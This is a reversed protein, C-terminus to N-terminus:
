EEFRMWKPAHFKAVGTKWWHKREHQGKEAEFTAYGNERKSEIVDVPQLRRRLTKWWSYQKRRDKHQRKVNERAQSIKSSSSCYVNSALKKIEVRSRKVSATLSRLSIVSAKRKVATKTQPPKVSLGPSGPGVQELLDDAQTHARVRKLPYTGLTDLADDSLPQTEQNATNNRPAVLHLPLDESSSLVEFRHYSTTPKRQLKVLPAAVDALSRDISGQSVTRADGSSGSSHLDSIDDTGRSYQSLNGLKSMPMHLVPSPARISEFGHEPYSSSSSDKKREQIPEPSPTESRERRITENIMDVISLQDDPMPPNPDSTNNLQAEERLRHRPPVPM